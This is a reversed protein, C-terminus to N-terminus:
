NPSPRDQAPADGAPLLVCRLPHQRAAALNQIKERFAAAEIRPFIGCSGRKRAHTCFVIAIARERGMGLVSELVFTVFESPTYPDNLLVLELYAAESRDAEVDAAVGKAIGHSLYVLADYRTAGQASLFRGIPEAFLEVLMDAGTVVTRESLQAENFALQLLHGLGTTPETASAAEVDRRLRTLDIGCAKLVPSADEDEILATLLDQPGPHTRGQARAASTARQLSRKFTESCPPLLAM